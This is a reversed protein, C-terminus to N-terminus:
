LKQLLILHMNVSLNPRISTVYCIMPHKRISSFEEFLIKRENYSM